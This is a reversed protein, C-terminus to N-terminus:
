LRWRRCVCHCEACSCQSGLPELCACESGDICSPLGGEGVQLLLHRESLDLGDEVVEAGLLAVPEVHTQCVVEWCCLVCWLVM